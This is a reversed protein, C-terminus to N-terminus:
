KDRREHEDGHLHLEGNQGTLFWEAMGEADLEDDDSM